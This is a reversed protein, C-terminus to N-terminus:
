KLYIEVFTNYRSCNRPILDRKRTSWVAAPSSTTLASLCKCPLVCCFCLSSLIQLQPIATFWNTSRFAEVTRPALSLSLSLLKAARPRSGEPILFLSLFLQNQTCRRHSPSALGCYVHLKCSGKKSAVMLRRSNANLNTCVACFISTEPHLSIVHM